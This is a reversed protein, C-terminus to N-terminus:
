GAAAPVAGSPRGSSKSDVDRDRSRQIYVAQQDTYSFRAPPLVWQKVVKYGGDRLNIRTEIEKPGGKTKPDIWGDGEFRWGNQELYEVEEGNDKYKQM